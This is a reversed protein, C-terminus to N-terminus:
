GPTHWVSQEFYGEGEPPHPNQAGAQVKLLYTHHILGMRKLPPVQQIPQDLGHIKGSKGCVKATGFSHQEEAKGHSKAAHGTGCSREAACFLVSWLINYSAPCFHGADEICLHLCKYIPPRFSFGSRNRSFTVISKEKGRQWFLAQGNKRESFLRITTFVVQKVIDQTNGHICRM